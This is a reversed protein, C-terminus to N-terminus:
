ILVKFEETKISQIEISKIAEITDVMKQREEQTSRTLFISMAQKADIGDFDSFILSGRSVTHIHDGESGVEFEHVQHSHGDVVATEGDGHDDLFVPHAHGRDSSTFGLLSKVEETKPIDKTEKNGDTEESTNSSSGTGEDKTKTSGSRSKNENNVEGFITKFDAANSTEFTREHDGLKEKYKVSSSVPRRERISTGVEKMLSSTLKGGEVMSLMIEETEADANAPISVLSEERISFKTVDFGGFPNDEEGELKDFEDASFGHSFRGMKNEIMVAADHSLENIDVIASFLSLKDKTHEAIGLMKGIPLTHVHQWLLLMNPDVTAGDTRLIDGDRDKSSTTLVHRFIMLTNKPLDLENGKHDKIRGVYSRYGDSNKDGWELDFKKELVMDENNYTLTGASKRLIDDFSTSGKAAFQYCSKSGICDQLTRVYKDATLIGRNFPDKSKRNSIAELLLENPSPM